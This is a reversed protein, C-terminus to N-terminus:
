YSSKVLNRKMELWSTAACYPVLALRTRFSCVYLFQILLSTDLLSLDSDCFTQFIHSHGGCADMRIEVIVDRIDIPEM